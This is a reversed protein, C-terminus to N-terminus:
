FESLKVGVEDTNMAMSRRRRCGFIPNLQRLSQMSFSAPSVGTRLRIGLERNFCNFCRRRSCRFSCVTSAAAGAVVISVSLRPLWRCLLYEASAVIISVEAEAVPSVPFRSFTTPNWLAPPSSALCRRHLLLSLCPQAIFSPFPLRQTIGRNLGFLM